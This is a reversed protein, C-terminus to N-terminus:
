KLDNQDMFSYTPWTGIVQPFLPDCSLDHSRVVGGGSLKLVEEPPVATVVDDDFKM